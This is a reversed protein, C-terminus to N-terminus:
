MRKSSMISWWLPQEIGHAEEIIMLLSPLLHFIAFFPHCTCKPVLGASYCTCTLWASPYIHVRQSLAHLTNGGFIAVEVLMALSSGSLPGSAAGACPVKQRTNWCERCGPLSASHNFYRSPNAMKWQQPDIGADWPYIWGFWRLGVALSLARRKQARM